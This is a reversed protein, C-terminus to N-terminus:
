KKIFSDARTEYVSRIAATATKAPESPVTARMLRCVGAGEGAVILTVVGGVKDSGDGVFGVVVGVVGTVGGASGTIEPVGTLV